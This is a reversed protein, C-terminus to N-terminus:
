RGTARIGHCVVHNISTCCSKTYGRYGLTAPIAGAGRMLRFVIDDIEQTTVGPVVHPVLADLIEAALPRGRAHRCLRGARAAQHRRQAPDARRRPRDDSIRDHRAYLAGAAKEIFAQRAKGQAALASADHCAHGHVLPDPRRPRSIMPSSIRDPRVWSLFMACIAPQSFRWPM